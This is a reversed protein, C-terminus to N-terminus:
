THQSDIYLIFWYNRCLQAVVAGNIEKALEETSYEDSFTLVIPSTFGAVSAVVQTTKSPYVGATNVRPTVVIDLRGSHEMSAIVDARTSGTFYRANRTDLLLLKM